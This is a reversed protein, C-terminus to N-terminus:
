AYVKLSIEDDSTDLFDQIVVSYEHSCSPCEPHKDDPSDVLGEADEPTTFDLEMEGDCEGDLCSLTFQRDQYFTM